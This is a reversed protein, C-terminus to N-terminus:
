SRAVGPLSVVAVTERVKTAFGNRHLRQPRSPGSCICTRDHQWARQQSIRKMRVHVINRVDLQGEKRQSAVGARDRGAHVLRQLSDGDEHHRVQSCM